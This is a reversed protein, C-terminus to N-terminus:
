SKGDRAERQKVTTKCNANRIREIASLLVARGDVYKRRIAAVREPAWGMAEAIEADSFGARALMTAFTGRADHLRKEIMLEDFGAEVVHTLSNPRWPGGRSHTLVQVANRPLAAILARAEDILPIVAERKGRSKRTRVRIALDDIQDWRLGVLDGRRLGTFCALALADGHKRPRTARFAALEHPEIIIESRDSSYLSPVGEAVNVSLRGRSVGWSLVRGIVQMAYDASRPSAAFSDRWKLLPGRFRRDEIAKLPGSGFQIRAKDIWRRWERQTSMALKRWEPSQLYEVILEELTDKPARAQTVAVYKALIDNPITRPFCEGDLTGLLPAGRGRWAYVYWRREGNALRVPMKWLGKITM